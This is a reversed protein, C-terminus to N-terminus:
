GLLALQFDNYLRQSHAGESRETLAFLSMFAVVLWSYQKICFDPWLKEGSVWYFCSHRNAYWSWLITKWAAVCPQNWMQRKALWIGSEGTPWKKKTGNEIAIKSWKERCGETTLIALMASASVSRLRRTPRRHLWGCRARLWPAHQRTPQLMPSHPVMSSGDWVRTM